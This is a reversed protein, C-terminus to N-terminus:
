IDDRDVTLAAADSGCSARREILGFMRPMAVRVFPTLMFAFTPRAVRECGTIAIAPANSASVATAPQEFSVVALEDLECDVVAAGAGDLEPALLEFAVEDLEVATSRAFTSGHM